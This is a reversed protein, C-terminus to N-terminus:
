EKLFKEIAEEVSVWEIRSRGDARVFLGARDCVHAMLWADHDAVLVCSKSKLLEAVALREEATLGDSPQDLVYIDAEAGLCRAVAIRQRLSQTITPRGRLPIRLMKLMEKSLGKLVAKQQLHEPKYSVTFKGRLMGSFEKDKGAIMQLLASKGTFDSGMLGVRENRYIEGDVQLANENFRKQVGAFEVMASREAGFRKARQAPNEGPKGKPRIRINEPLVGEVFASIGEKASYLRSPAGWTEDGYFISISDCTWRLFTIDNDAVVVLATRGKEKILKAVQWRQVIDLYDSPCDFLYVDANKSLAAAISVRQLENANLQEANKTDYGGLRLAHVVEFDLNLDSLNRRFDPLHRLREVAQPKYSTVLEEADLKKMLEGTKGKYKQLLTYWGCSPYLRGALILLATTKGAGGLMGVVGREPLEPLGYLEFGKEWRHLPPMKPKVPTSIRPM